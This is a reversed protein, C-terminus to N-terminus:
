ETIELLIRNLKDPDVPSNPMFNDKNDVICYAEDCCAEFFPWTMLQKKAWTLCYLGDNDDYEVGYVCHGGWTGPQGNNGSVLSWPQNNNWQDQASMPLQLGIFAGNLFAISAKVENRDTPHVQAFAYIDYKTGGFTLCALKRAGIKWGNQRWENLSDLMILGNDGGGTEKYYENLIDKDTMYILKKQEFAEFRRTMHGRAVMVCDGVKDNQYMPNDIPFSYQEDVDFHPPLPPLITLISKLPITREDKRTPLKGLRLEM